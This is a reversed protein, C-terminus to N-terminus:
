YETGAFFCPFEQGRAILHDLYERFTESTRKPGDEFIVLKSMGEPGIERPTNFGEDSDPDVGTREKYAARISDLSEGAWWEYDNVRFIKIQESM